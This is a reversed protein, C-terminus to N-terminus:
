DREELFSESQFSPRASSQFCFFSEESGAARIESCLSINGVPFRIHFSLSKSSTVVKSCRIYGLFYSSSM